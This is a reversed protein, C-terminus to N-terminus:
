QESVMEFAKQKKEKKRLYGEVDRISKNTLFLNQWRKKDECKLKEAKRQETDDLLGSLRLFVEPQNRPYLRKVCEKSEALLGLFDPCISHRLKEIAEQYVPRHDQKILDLLEIHAEFLFKVKDFREDPGICDIQNFIAGRQEDMKRREAEKEASIM